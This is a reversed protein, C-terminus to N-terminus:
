PLGVGTGDILFSGTGRGAAVLAGYNAVIANALKGALDFKSRVALGKTAQMLGHIARAPSAAGGDRGDHDAALRLAM